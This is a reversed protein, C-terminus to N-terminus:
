PGPDADVFVIVDGIMYFNYYGNGYKTLIDARKEEYTEYGQYEFITDQTGRYEEYKEEKNLLYVGGSDPGDWDPNVEMRDITFVLFVKEDDTEVQIDTLFDPFVDVKSDEMYILNLLDVVVYNSMLPSGKTADALNQELNEIRAYLSNKENSLERNAKKLVDIEDLLKSNDVAPQISATSETTSTTNITSCSVLLAAMLLCLVPAVLRSKM